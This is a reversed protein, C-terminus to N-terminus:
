PVLAVIRGAVAAYGTTTLHVAGGGDYWGGATAEAATMIAGVDVVSTQPEQGQSAQLAARYAILEADDPDSIRHSPVLLWHLEGAPWGNIEWIRKIRIQCARINDVYEPATNGASAVRAPGASPSNTENRDNVGTNIYVVVIPSQGESIQLRRVEAFWISLQQDSSNQLLFAFDWASQGGALILSHCSIGSAGVVESRTYYTVIPGTLSAGPVQWRAELPFTRGTDAAMNLVRMRPGDRGSEATTSQATITALSTFPSDGRRVGATFTGGSFSDDVGFCYWHRQASTTPWGNDPILGHGGTNSSYSTAAPVYGPRPHVQGMFAQAVSVGAPDAQMNAANLGASVHQPVAGHGSNIGTAYVGFRTVLAAELSKGFGHGGFNQNSDGIMVLDVRRTSAQALAQLATL